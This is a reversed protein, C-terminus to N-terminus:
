HRRRASALRGALWPAFSEDLITEVPLVAWGPRSGLRAADKETTVITANADRAAQEVAALDQPTFWHHDRFAFECAIEFGQSRLAMFFRDPHAIGAVAV